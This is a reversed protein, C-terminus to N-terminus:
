IRIYVYIYSYTNYIDVYTLIYICTHGVNAVGVQVVSTVGM